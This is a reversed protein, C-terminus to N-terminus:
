PGYIRYFARAVQDRRIALGGKFTGDSYGTMHGEGVAWSVADFIWNGPPVDRFGPNAYGRPSGNARWMLRVYEGRSIPCNGRFVPPPGPGGCAPPSSNDPYGTMIGSSGVWDM